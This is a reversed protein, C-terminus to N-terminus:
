KQSNSVANYRIPEDLTKENSNQLFGVNIGRALSSDTLQLRQITRLFSKPVSKQPIHHARIGTDMIQMESKNSNMSNLRGTRTQVNTYRM